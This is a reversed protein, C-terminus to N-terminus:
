WTWLALSSTDKIFVRNGAITPQAWTEKDAVVYRKVEGLGSATPKAVILEGDDELAFVLDGARVIAANSAQRPPGKWLTRGTKADLAFFQGSNRHSLAFFMNRAIVGNTMYLSVDNNEWVNETTWRGDRKAVTFATVPKELGSVIITGNYVVPTLANQTFNTSFPRKWLLEGNSASVGVLNEQTFVIVQRTGAIDVAIPSGYSPGDGSWAWKVAGTSADFATLAGKDHGGVHVIVMGHELLPSMATHYLPAVPPAPKQWIQKGDAANYATVIGTMGLTYLKGDAFTPTSKPGKEHRAAAPNVTFSAPYSTQWVEKGSDADVAALVENENRRSFMYIRKGVLVPTAYGLGVDITWKRALKDPWSKPETFNQVVGDRNPGRWQPWDPPPSQASVGAFSLVVFLRLWSCSSLTFRLPRLALYERRDRRTGRNNRGFQLSM